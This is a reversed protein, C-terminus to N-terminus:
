KGERQNQSVQDKQNSLILAGSRVAYEVSEYNDFYAGLHCLNWNYNTFVLEKIERSSVLNKLESINNNIIASVVAKEKPNSHRSNPLEHVDVEPLTGM